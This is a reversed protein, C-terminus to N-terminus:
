QWALNPNSFDAGVRSSARKNADYIERDGIVVRPDKDATERTNQAIDALYPALIESVAERVGQKIGEVIQANNAVATQGNTFQGVLENHNALFLGDEPFGGTAFTPIMGLDITAGGFLQRGMINIPPIDIVLKSNLWEAFTNWISKIAEIAREFSAGIGDGISDWMGSFFDKLGGWIDEATRRIGSWIDSLTASIGSWVSEATDKFGEWISGFLDKIGNWIQECNEKISDWVELLYDKIGKWVSEIKEQIGNWLEFFFEKISNWIDSASEKIADWIESLFEKIEEWVEHFKDSVGEWVNIIFEKIGDWISSAIDKIANWIDSLFDKLGNWISESFEKIATWLNQFFEGVSNWINEASEKISNWIGLLFDKLANWTKEATEKVGNWIEAFFSKISEWISLASAKISEWIETLFGRISEWISLTAEQIGNWLNGFFEKIAGWITDAVIRISEWIERLTEGVGKWVEIITNVIEDFIGVISSFLSKIGDILGQMIYGGIEAMVTSPSHIGFISKLGGVLADFIAKVIDAIAAVSALVGKALGEILNKGFEIWDTKFIAEILGAALHGVLEIALASIKGLIEPLSSIGITLMDILNKGVSGWDISQIAESIKDFLGRAFNIAAEALEPGGVAIAPLMALITAVIAGKAGFFKTVIPLIKELGNFSAVLTTIALGMKGSSTEQLGSVFGGIVETAGDFIKSFAGKIDIQSLFEGIGEGLKKWDTDKAVKLLMDLLEQMLKNLAEGNDKWNLNSIATNLGNSINDAIDDWRIDSVAQKLSNFIGNILNTLVRAIDSLSIKEFIGNITNAIASGLEQWGTLGADSKKSMDTIFGDLIRWMTMFGNGLANGFEDWPVENIFSRISNSINEGLKEFNIGGGIDTLQNFARVIDTVAAGIIKGITGFDIELLKNFARAVSDTFATIKAGMNEGATSDWKLGNYLRELGLNFKEIVWDLGDSVTNLMYTLTELIGKFGETIVSAIQEFNIREFIGLIAEGLGNGLEAWGSLLTEPNIKWMGEIFGEAIRWAVMFWNGIANGLGQWDIEDIMGRFGEAIKRGLNEFDIGEDGLLANIATTILNIGAGITRGLLDWDLNEIFSNFVKAFNKLAQEVKPTINKLFDYVKQLGANVLDAIEKGLGEWDQNLFADRIRKAWDAIDKEILVTEFMDEPLLEKDKNKETDSLINLEDIGITGVAKKLDKVEDTAGAVTDAFDKYVKKAQVAYQKGTLASLFRGIANSANTIMDIFKSIYPAVVNVIPAFAVALANKLTFLSSLVSSLSGNVEDSYLSLNKFGEVTASRLKNILVYLSRIGLGYKLVTKLAKKFSIDMNSNSKIADKMSKAMKKINTNVTKINDSLKKFGSSALKKVSSAFRSIQSIVSRFTNQLSKGVKEITSMAKNLASYGSTKSATSDATKMKEKIAQIQKETLAIQERAKRYGADNFDVSVRGMTIDNKLKARLKDLQSEARALDKKLKELSNTRIEPIQLNKLNQRFSEAAQASTRKAEESAQAIKRKLEEEQKELLAFQEIAKVYGSDDLSVSIRGRAIDNNLKVALKDAQAEVRQLMKELKELSTENIEPVKLKDLSEQLQRATEEMKSANDAKVSSIKQNIAEEKRQLIEFQEMAKVYGKDDLSMEIRGMAIDNNLRTALKDAESEVSKLMTELKKLDTEVVEPVKFKSFAEKLERAKEVDEELTRKLAEPRSEELIDLKNKAEQIDHILGEFSKTNIEGLDIKKNKRQDLKNLDANVKSIEKELQQTNGQFYFGKGVDKYKEELEKIKETVKNVTEEVSGAVRKSAEELDQAWTKTDFGKFGAEKNISNILEIQAKVSDILELAEPVDEKLDELLHQFPSASIPEGKQRSEFINSLDSLREKYYNITEDIESKEKEDLFKLVGESLGKTSSTDVDIKVPTHNLQEIKEKINEIVNGYMNVKKVATDYAKTDVYGSTELAEKDLKAKQLSDSYSILQNQLKKISDSPEFDKGLDKYKENIESMIQGVSKSVKKAEDEVPKLSKSVKDGLDGMSQSIAKAQEAFENLGKNSRIAYIGKAVVGLKGILADLSKNVTDVTSQISIELSDIEAM